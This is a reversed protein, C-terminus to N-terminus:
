FSRVRQPRPGKQALLEGRGVANMEAPRVREVCRAIWALVVVACNRNSVARSCRSHGKGAILILRVHDGGRILVHEALIQGPVAVYRRCKVAWASVVIETCAAAPDGRVAMVGIVRRATGQRVRIAIGTRGEDTDRSAQM